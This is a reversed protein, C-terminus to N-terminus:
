KRNKDNNLKNYSKALSKAIFSFQKDLKKEYGQNILEYLAEAYAESIKQFLLATKHNGDDESDESNEVSHTIAARIAQNLCKVDGSVKCSMGTVGDIEGIEINLEFRPNKM